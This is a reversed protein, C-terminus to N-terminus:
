CVMIKFSCEPSSPVRTCCLFFTEWSFFTQWFGFSVLLSKMCAYKELKNAVVVNRSRKSYNYLLYWHADSCVLKMLAAYLYIKVVSENGNYPEVVECLIQFSGLVM